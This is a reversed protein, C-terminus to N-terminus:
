HDYSARMHHFQVRRMTTKILCMRRKVYYIAIVLTKVIPLPRIQPIQLTTTTDGLRGPLILTLFIVHSTVAYVLTLTPLVSMFTAIQAYLERKVIVLLPLTPAFWRKPISIFTPIVVLRTPADAGFFIFALLPEKQHPIM